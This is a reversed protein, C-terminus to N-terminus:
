YIQPSLQYPPPSSLRVQNEMTWHAHTLIQKPLPLDLAMLFAPWYVCHFRMIDKGIVHVDAPWGASGDHFSQGPFGAVTAYNVLADLWVYITQSEDQPVPIGWTLRSIPRSISLDELGAELWSTVEVMRSNPVIFHPHQKYYELLRDRFTSLKFHYNAESTWEVEKGTEQSAMFTRGTVPDLRKEIQSEPYYTEDSVCYWGQHKSEYIYGRENLLTWFHQVAERHDEDTTRIFRDHSLNAREALHKFKNSVEDCFDQPDRDANSAAQQIKMGHEDTGTCLLAPKGKLVQWRKLIDTLVM